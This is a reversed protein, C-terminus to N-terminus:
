TSHRFHQESPSLRGCTSVLREAAIVCLYLHNVQETPLTNSHASMVKRRFKWTTSKLHFQETREVHNKRTRRKLLNM